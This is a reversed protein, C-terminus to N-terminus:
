AALPLRVRLPAVDGLVPPPLPRLWVREYSEYRKLDSSFEGAERKFCEWGEPAFWAGDDYWSTIVEFSYVNEGQAEWHSPVALVGDAEPTSDTDACEGTCCCNCGAEAEAEALAKEAEQAEQAEAAQEDLWDAMTAGRSPLSSVFPAIRLTAPRAPRSHMCTKYVNLM